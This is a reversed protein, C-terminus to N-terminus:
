LAEILRTVTSKADGFLKITKPMDYLPNEVGSYGPKEDLNCVVVSRAEHALLIPMGSIPTDTSDIAEPNVVDCAGIVVVLDIEKLESNIEDLEVLKDYDVDAEALLVNMHGPMRGAVPHIAFKVDKNMNELRNTMEVVKFQAKALAMGYGPIIVIRQSNKLVAVARVIGDEEEPSKTKALEPPMQKLPTAPKQKIGVFVNILSRNMAKCMIYTLISGSAAVAAGCAVLLRNQILIGCFAAAFGATANLFSILVPMDAGGIRISFIIGLLISLGLLITLLYVNGQSEYQGTIIALVFTIFFIGFLLMSHRPFVIPKQNLKNALRGSAIMSGSFTAAGIVLGLLGSIKGLAPLYASTERTLEVFSILFVAVGGAGHQFAVMAPIQIMDVMIAVIWGTTSGIVMAVVVFGPDLIDNRYLVLLCAILIAFAATLNGTRAGKPHRFQYIGGLFLTIVSLDILLHPWNSMLKKDGRNRLRVDDQKINDRSINEQPSQWIFM